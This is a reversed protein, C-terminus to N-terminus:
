FDPASGFSGDQVARLDKPNIPIPNNSHHLIPTISKPEVASRYEM